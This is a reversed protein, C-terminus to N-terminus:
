PYAKEGMFYINISILILLRASQGDPTQKFVCIEVKIPAIAIMHIAQFKRYIMPFYLENSITLKVGM